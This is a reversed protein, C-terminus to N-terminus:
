VRALRFALAARRPLLFDFAPRILLLLLEANLSRQYILGGVLMRRTDYYELVMKRIDTKGSHIVEVSDGDLSRNQVLTKALM